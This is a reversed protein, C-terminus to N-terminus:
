HYPVPALVAMFPVTRGYYQLVDKEQASLYQLTVLATDTRTLQSQVSNDLPYSVKVSPNNVVHGAIVDGVFALGRTANRFTTLVASQPSHM